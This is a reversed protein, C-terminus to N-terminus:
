AELPLGYERADAEGQPTALYQEWMWDFGHKEIRRHNEADRKGLETLYFWDHVGRRIMIKLVSDRFVPFICYGDPPRYNWKGSLILDPDPIPGNKTTWFGTSGRLFPPIILMYCAFLVVERAEEPSMFICGKFGKRLILLPGGHVFESLTERSKKIAAGWYKRRGPSVVYNLECRDVDSLLKEYKFQAAALLKMGDALESDYFLDKMKLGVSLVIEMATCGHSLCKILVGKHGECISLSPHTDSHAPCRALWVGRRVRKAGVLQAFEIATM